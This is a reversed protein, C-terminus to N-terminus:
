RLRGRVWYPCANKCSRGKAPRGSIGTSYHQQHGTQSQFNSDAQCNIASKAVTHALHQRPCRRGLGIRLVGVGVEGVPDYWEGNTNWGTMRADEMFAATLTDAQVSYTIAQDFRANWILCVPTEWGEAGLVSVALNGYRNSEGM